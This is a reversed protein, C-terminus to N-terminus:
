MQMMVLEMANRVRRERQTQIGQMRTPKTQQRPKSKTIGRTKNTPNSQRWLTEFDDLTMIRLPIMVEKRIERNLQVFDEKSKPDKGFRIKYEDTISGRLDRLCKEFNKKNEIKKKFDDQSSGVLEIQMYKDLLNKMDPTLKFETAYPPEEKRIDTVTVIKTPKSPSKANGFPNSPKKKAIPGFNLNKMFLSLEAQNVRVPRTNVM